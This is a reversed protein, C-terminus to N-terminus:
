TFLCILHRLRFICCIGNKAYCVQFIFESLIHFIISIIMNSM